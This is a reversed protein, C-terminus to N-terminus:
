VVQPMADSTTLDSSARADHSSTESPPTIRPGPRRKSRRTKQYVAAYFRQRAAPNVALADARDDTIVMAALAKEFAQRNLLDLAIDPTSEVTNRARVIITHTKKYMGGAEREVEDSFIVPIFQSSSAALKKLTEPSSFVLVKDKYGEAKLDDADFLCALFALAEAKSDASIILPSTPPTKLWSILTQKHTEISVAFIEKSLEPETVSAWTEWFEELAHVGESPMGIHKALWGQVHLSQELWQELDSGDYARM